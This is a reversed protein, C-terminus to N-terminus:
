HYFVSLLQILKYQNPILIRGSSTEQGLLSINNRSEGILNVKKQRFKRNGQKLTEYQNSNEM